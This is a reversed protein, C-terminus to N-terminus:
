IKEMAGFVDQIRDRLLLCIKQLMNFGFDPNNLMLGRLDAGKFAIVKSHKQCVASSLFSNCEGLLTSWCGFSRGKGLMGVVKNGQSSGLNICRELFVLGETIIYISEGLDGQHFVYEGARFSEERCLASIEMISKKDLGKFLECGEVGIQIASGSM